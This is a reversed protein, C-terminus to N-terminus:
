KKIIKFTKLVKEHDTVKLFYIAPQLGDMSLSTQSSAIKSSQVLKGNLNYLHYYLVRKDAQETVLMLIDSVPNPYASFTLRVHDSGEVATVVTIEYPIQLGHVLTGMDSTNTLYVIQGISYSKSGQSGSADGGSAQVGQQAHVCEFVFSLLLTLSFTLIKNRM